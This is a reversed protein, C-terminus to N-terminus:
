KKGTQQHPPRLPNVRRFAMLEQTSTRDHLLKKDRADFKQAMQLWPRDAVVELFCKRWGADM